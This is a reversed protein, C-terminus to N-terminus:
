QADTFRTILVDFGDGGFGGLREPGTAGVAVFADEGVGLIDTAYTSTREQPGFPYRSAVDGQRDVRVIEARYGGIQDTSLDANWAVALHHGDLADLATARVAGTAYSRSWQVGGSEDLRTLQVSREGEDRQNILM